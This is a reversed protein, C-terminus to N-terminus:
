YHGHRQKAPELGLVLACAEAMEKAAALDKAYDFHDGAQYLFGKSTPKTRVLVDKYGTLEIYNVHLSQRWRHKCM